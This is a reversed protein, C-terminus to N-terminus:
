LLSGEVIIGIGTYLLARSIEQGARYRHQLYLQLLAVASVNSIVGEGDGAIQLVVLPGVRHIPGNPDEAGDMDPYIADVASHRLGVIFGNGVYLADLDNTWIWGEQPSLIDLFPDFFVTDGDELTYDLRGVVAKTRVAIPGVKAQLLATFSLQSGYGDYPDGADENADRTAESVDASPGEFSQLHGFTSFYKIYEYSVGLRVISLPMVEVTGGLRTFAPTLVPTAAASVYNQAFLPHDSDYLRLRYELAASTILGLPNYRFFTADRWVVSHKSQAAVTSSSFFVLACVFAVALVRFM